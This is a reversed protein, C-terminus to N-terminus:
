NNNINLITNEKDIIELFKYIGNKQFEGCENAILIVKNLFSKTFYKNILYEKKVSLFVGKLEKIHNKGSTVFRFTIQSIAEYAVDIKENMIMETLIDLKIDTFLIKDLWINNALLSKFNDSKNQYTKKIYNWDELTMNEVIDLYIDYGAWEAWDMSDLGEKEYKELKTYYYKVVQSM